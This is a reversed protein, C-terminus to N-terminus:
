LLLGVQEGLDRVRVQPGNTVMHRGFMTGISFLFLSMAQSPHIGDSARELRYFSSSVYMKQVFVAKIQLKPYLKSSFVNNRSRISGIGQQRRLLLTNKGYICIGGNPSHM